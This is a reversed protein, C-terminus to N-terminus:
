TAPITSSLTPRLAASTSVPALATFIAQTASPTMEPCGAQVTGNLCRVRRARSTSASRTASRATAPLPPRGVRGAFGLQRRHLFGAGLENREVQLVQGNAAGQQAIRLPNGATGSDALTTNVSVVQAGWDDGAADSAPVWGTGNWKALVQGPTAGQQDLNVPSGITGNGTLASGVWVAQTGWNDGADNAPVLQNREMETDPQARRGTAGARAPKGGHRQRDAHQRYVTQAGWNDGGDPAPFWTSGNWKLVQSSTAGQQAVKLPNAPTGNGALTGDTSAM